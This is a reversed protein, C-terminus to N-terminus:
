GTDLPSDGGALALSFHAPPSHGETVTVSVEIQAQAAGAPAVTIDSVGPRIDQPSALTQAARERGPGWGQQRSMGQCVPATELRQKSDTGRTWVAWPRTATNGAAGCCSHSLLHICISPHIVTGRSGQPRAVPPDLHGRGSSLSQSGRTPTRLTGESSLGDNRM